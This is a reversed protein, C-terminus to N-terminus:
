QWLTDDVSIWPDPVVFAVVVDAGRGDNPLPYYHGIRQGVIFYSQPPVVAVDTVRRLYLRVRGGQHRKLLRRIIKPSLGRLYREVAAVAEPEGHPRIYFYGTRTGVELYDAPQVTLELPLEVPRPYFYGSRRGIPVIGRLVPGPVREIAPQIFLPIYPM